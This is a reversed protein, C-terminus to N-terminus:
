EPKEAVCVKAIGASRAQNVFTMVDGHPVRRDALLLLERRSNLASREKLRDALLAVQEPDRLSFREDDFFVLTEDGGAVDRTVAIMMATLSSNIGEHLTAAPLDFITGPSVTARGHVFLLLVVITLVNLWPVAALLTRAWVGGFRYISRHQRVQEAWSDERKEIM